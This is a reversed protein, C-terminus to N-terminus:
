IIGVQKMVVFCLLVAKQEATAAGKFPEPLATNFSAQNDDVWADIAAFAAKIQETTMTATEGGEVFVKGVWQRMGEAHQEDTLAM